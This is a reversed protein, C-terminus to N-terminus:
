RRRSAAAIREAQPTALVAELMLPTGDAGALPLTWNPYERFTGPQNIPRRDGALDALSVGFLKSAGKALYEHLAVVQDDTSANPAVLGADVVQQVFAAVVDREAALEDDLTRSLLGLEHRIRVHALELYGATPPLDHTTVTALCETRYESPAIPADHEDREFWMIQTGFVHRETMVSRTLDSVVGLDEGIVLAGARDAELLLVGIMAEHNYTVYTGAGAHMGTPVWWLRFMGLIHDIRLAGSGTFAARLMDRLPAYGTRELADPRLPPQSWDQGLQNFADPPAGVSVGRALSDDLSWADAGSPHVGVALDHMVGIRMGADRVAQQTALAQERVVFQLWCYFQIRDANAQRFEDVAHTRPSHMPEPWDRWNWGHTECLACWTAFDILGQGETECFAGFDHWHDANEHAAAFCLGLAERKATWVTDRDIEDRSATARAIEALEAIRTAATDRLDIQGTVDDVNILSPDVFRRSTPLYPSPELPTVPSPAHFPNVLVFDAGREAGWTGLTRLDSLDGMGWSSESRAQYLQAMIGWAPEDVAFSSRQPACILTSRAIVEEGDQEALLMVGATHDNVAAAPIRAELEHWGAAIQGPLRFKAEGIEVGEVNGNAVLHELQELQIRDGTECVAEVTVPAGAPVHVLVDHDCGARMVVTPPLVQRWHRSRAFDLAQEAAAQSSTDIDLARLVASLTADSVTVENGRWDFYRTAIGYQQALEVLVQQTVTETM